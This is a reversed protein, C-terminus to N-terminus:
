NKQKMGEPGEGINAEDPNPVSQISTPLIGLKRNINITLGTDKDLDIREWLYYKRGTSWEENIGMLIAVVLRLLV